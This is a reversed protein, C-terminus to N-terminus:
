CDPPVFVRQRYYALEAISERIDDLARHSNVKAPAQVSEPYWRRVLEKISSVDVNRYHFHQELSPMHRRLFLRDQYISNGCLPATRPGTHLQLFALTLSEAEALDAHSRRVREILGSEGHHQTNWEDMKQLESEPQRIALTPGEALVTLESDTVITAIEIVTHVDPDLGTMELDIWILRDDRM